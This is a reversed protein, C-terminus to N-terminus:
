KLGGRKNGNHAVNRTKRKKHTTQKKYFGEIIDLTEVVHGSVFRYCALVYRPMSMTRSNHVTRWSLGGREDHFLLTDAKTELCIDRCREAYYKFDLRTGPKAPPKLTGIKVGYQHENQM